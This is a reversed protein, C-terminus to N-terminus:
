HHIQPKPASQAPPKTRRGHVFLVLAALLGALSHLLGVLWRNSDDVWYYLAYGSGLLSLMLLLLGVGTKVQRRERWGRPIHVTGLGGLALTFLLTALGHLRLLAHELPHPLELEPTSLGNRYHLALWVGGSILLVVGASHLLWYLWRPLPNPHPYM